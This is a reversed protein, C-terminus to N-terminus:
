VVTSSISTARHLRLYVNVYNMSEYDNVLMGILINKGLSCLASAPQIGFIARGDRWITEHVNVLSIHLLFQFM